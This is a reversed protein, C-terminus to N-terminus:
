SDLRLKTLENESSMTILAINLAVPFLLSAKSNQRLFLMIVLIYFKLDQSRKGTSFDGRNLKYIVKTVNSLRGWNADRDTGYNTSNEPSSQLFSSM